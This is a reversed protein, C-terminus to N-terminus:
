INLKSLKKAEDLYKLYLKQKEESEEKYKELKREISFSREHEGSLLDNINNTLNNRMQEEPSLDRQLKVVEIYFRKFSAYTLNLGYEKNICDILIKDVVIRM